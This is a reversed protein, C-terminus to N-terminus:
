ESIKWDKSLSVIEAASCGFARLKARSLVLTKRDLRLLITATKLCRRVEDERSPLMYHARAGKLAWDALASSKDVDSSM